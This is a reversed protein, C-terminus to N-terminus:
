VVPADHDVLHGLRDFVVNQESVRHIMIVFEDGLVKANEEIGDGQAIYSYHTDSGLEFKFLVEHTSTNLSIFFKKSENGGSVDSESNTGTSNACGFPFVTM